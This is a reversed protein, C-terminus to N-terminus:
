WEFVKDVYQDINYILIDIKNFEFINLWFLLIIYHYHFIFDNIFM